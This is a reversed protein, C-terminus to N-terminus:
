TSLKETQTKKSGISELYTANVRNIICIICYEHKLV